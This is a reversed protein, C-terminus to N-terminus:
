VPGGTTGGGTEVGDHRHSDLVVGNSSLSGSTQSLSGKISVPGNITASGGGSGGVSISKAQVLGTCTVTPADLTIGTAKVTAQKTTANISETANVTAKSTNATISESTEISATKIGTALLASVNADYEIIAGDPFHVHLTKSRADPQPFADCFLGPLVIATEPNGSMCFITVQEGVSPPWWVRADGARIASIPLHRTELKGSKVRCTGEKLNVDTVVGTRILNDIRRRLDAIENEINM